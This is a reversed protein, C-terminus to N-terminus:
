QATVTVPDYGESAIVVMDGAALKEVDFTAGGGIVRTQTTRTEPGSVTIDASLPQLYLNGIHLTITNRAGVLQFPGGRVKEFSTVVPLHRAKLILPRARALEGEAKQLRSQLDASQSRALDLQSLLEKSGANARDLRAQLDASQAKAGDLRSQLDTSQAKAKELQTQLDASQAKAKELQAQLDSQQGRAKDLQAQLQAAAAKARDLEAPAQTTDPRAQAMPKQSDAVPAVQAPHTAQANLRHVKVALVIALIVLGICLVLVAPSSGRQLIPGQSPTRPANM